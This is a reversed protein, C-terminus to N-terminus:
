FHHHIRPKVKIKEHEIITTPDVDKRLTKSVNQAGNMTFFHEAEDLLTSTTWDGDSDTGAYYHMEGSRYPNFLSIVVRENFNLSM